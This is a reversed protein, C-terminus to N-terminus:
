VTCGIPQCSSISFCCGTLVWSAGQTVWKSGSDVERRVGLGGPGRWRGRARARRDPRKRGIEHKHSKSMSPVVTRAAPPEGNHPKTVAHEGMRSHISAPPNWNGHPTFIRVGKWPTYPASPHPGPTRSRPKPPYLFPKGTILMKIFQNKLSTNNKM